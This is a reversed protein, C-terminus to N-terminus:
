REFDFTNFVIDTKNSKESAAYTNLQKPYNLSMIKLKHIDIIKPYDQWYLKQYFASMANNLLDYSHNKCYFALFSLKKYYPDNHDMENIFFKRLFPDPVPLMHSFKIKSIIYGREDVIRHAIPSNPKVMIGNELQILDHSKISSFPAYYNLNEILFPGVYVREHRYDSHVHYLVNPDGENRLYDVYEDVIHFLYLKKM